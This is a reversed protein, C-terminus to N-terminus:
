FGFERHLISYGYSLRISAVDRGKKKNERVFVPLRGPSIGVTDFSGVLGFAIGMVSHIAVAYHEQTQYHRTHM